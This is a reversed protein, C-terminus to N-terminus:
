LLDDNIAAPRTWVDRSFDCGCKCQQVHVM